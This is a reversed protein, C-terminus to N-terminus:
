EFGHDQFDNIPSHLLPEAFAKRPASEKLLSFPFKAAVNSDSNYSQTQLFDWNDEMKAM